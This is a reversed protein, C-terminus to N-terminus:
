GKEALAKDIIGAGIPGLIQGGFRFLLFAGVFLLLPALLLAVIAAILVVVVITVFGGSLVQQGKPGLEITRPGKADWWKGTVITKRQGGARPPPRSTSSAPQATSKLAPRDTPRQVWPGKSREAIAAAMRAKGDAAAPTAAAVTPASQRAPAPRASLGSEARAAASLDPAVSPKAPRIPEVGMSRDHIDMREAASLPTQGTEKDIVVLRGGREVVSFRSPPPRDVM